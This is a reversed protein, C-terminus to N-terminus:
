ESDVFFVQIAQLGSANAVSGGVTVPIGGEGLVRADPEAGDGFVFYADHGDPLAEFGLLYDGPPVAAWGTGAQRTVLDATTLVANDGVLTVEFGDAIPPCPTVQIDPLPTGPPCNNAVLLVVYSEREASEEAPLTDPNLGGAAPVEAQEDVGPLEPAVPEVTPVLVPEAAPAAAETPVAGAAGANGIERLDALVVLRDRSPQYIIRIPDSGNFVQFVLSGSLAGGAAIEDYGLQPTQEEVEPLLSVSEPFALFGEADQIAFASPDVQLPRASTNEIEFRVMVYHTGRDPASFDGYGDFPDVIEAVALRALVDGEPGIFSVAAGVVPDALDQAPAPVAGALLALVAFVIAFRRM